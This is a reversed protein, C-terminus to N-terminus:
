CSIGFKQIFNEWTMARDGAKEIKGSLKGDARYLLFDTSGSFSGAIEGGQALIIAEQEKSRYGTFCIKKGLLAGFKKVKAPLSGDTTIVDEVLEFWQLFRHVGVTLAVITKDSWGDIQQLTDKIEAVSMIMLGDMSLGYDELSSLKREGIGIEMCGSAVMLTKLNITSNLVRLLEEIINAAQGDGLGSALLKVRMEEREGRLLDIYEIASTLGIDYLKEITKEALLEIGLTTVFFRIQSIAIDKNLSFDDSDAVKIDVGSETWVYDCEPMQPEGTVSPVIVEQIFPIVDGSRVLRLIAGPGVVNDRIFRANFGTARRIIVGKLRVGKSELM